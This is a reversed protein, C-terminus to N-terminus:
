NEYKQARMEALEAQALIIIGQLFAEKREKQTGQVHSTLWYLDSMIVGSIGCRVVNVVSEKVLPNEISM